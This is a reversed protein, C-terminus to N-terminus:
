GYIPSLTGWMVLNNVHLVIISFMICKCFDTLMDLALMRRKWGESGAPARGGRPLWGPGAIVRWGRERMLISGPSTLKGKKVM